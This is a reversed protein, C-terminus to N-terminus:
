LESIKELYDEQNIKKMASEYQQLDESTIKAGTTIRVIKLLATRLNKELNTGLDQIEFALGVGEIAKNTLDPSFKNLKDPTPYKKFENYFNKQLEILEILKEKVRSNM